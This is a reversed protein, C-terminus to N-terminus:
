KLWTAQTWADSKQPTGDLTGEEECPVFGRTLDIKRSPYSYGTNDIADGDRRPNGDGEQLGDFCTGVIVGKQDGVQELRHGHNRLQSKCRCKGEEGKTHVHDQRM